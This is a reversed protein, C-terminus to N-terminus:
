FSREYKKGLFKAALFGKVKAPWDVPEPSVVPLETFAVGNTQLWLDLLRESIRGPWRAGFADLGVGDYKREVEALVDFLWSCYADFEPTRMVFMNFLHASCSSMHADWADVYAPWREVLAARCAALQDAGGEMTHLYHDGVTEIVYSRRRAVVAPYQELLRTLDEGTALRGYPDRAHRRLNEPSGLLRRYHVIGKADADANRWLWYVGTLESYSSNRISINDGEDDRQFGLDLKPRLAAGVHIPLYCPDSPMRYPKHTAVGM